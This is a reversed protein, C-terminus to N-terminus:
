FNVKHQSFVSKDKNLTIGAERCRQLVQKLRKDHLEQTQAHILLDDIYVEVGEIDRVVDLMVAHFIEPASSVGMPCRLYRYKGFPTLFCTLKSSEETLLLQHFGQKGDLCTFVNSGQLRAFIETTTNISCQSRVLQSNLYQPDLCLRINGNPKRVIVTPSLWESPGTDRCIIKDSELRDLELKLKDRVGQPVTRSPMVKPVATDKLKLEVSKRYKGLGQFVDSYEHQINDTSQNQPVITSVSRVQPIIELQKIAPMGLLTVSEDKGEIVYFTVDANTNSGQVSVNLLVKGITNLKHSGGYASLTVRTSRVERIGLKVLQELGIVSVQAGTDVQCNISHQNVLCDLYWGNGKANVGDVVHVFFDDDSDSDNGNCGVVKLSRNGKHKCVRSFHNFQECNNCRKGYAPCRGTVHSLGCFRCDVISKSKQKDGLTRNTKPRSDYSSRRSVAAVAGAGSQDGDIEARQNRIIIEKARMKAKINDITVNEDLQLERSLSKDKMGALIRTRLMLTQQAPEWNCKDALEYLSRIFEENSETPGQIRSSFLISYHLSNDRPHFYNTFGDLTRIFLTANADENGVTERPVVQRFVKEAEDGMVYILTDIQRQQDRDILGSASRYRMFRQKWDDWVESANSFDLPSPTKIDPM